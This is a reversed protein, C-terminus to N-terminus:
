ASEKKKILFSVFKLDKRSNKLSNMTQLYLRKIVSHKWGFWRSIEDYTYIMEVRLLKKKLKQKAKSSFSAANERKSFLIQHSMELRELLALEQSRATFRKEMREKLFDQISNGSASLISKLLLIEKRELFLNHKLKLILVGRPDLNRLIERLFIRDQSLETSYDPEYVASGPLGDPELFLPETKSSQIEKKWQNWILHKLFVIAYASFNEFGRTEYLESFYEMKQIFKLLVENLGDESLSYKRVAIRRIWFFAQEILAKSDGFNKYQLYSNIFIRDLETKQQM